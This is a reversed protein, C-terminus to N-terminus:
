LRPRIRETAGAVGALTVSLDRADYNPKDITLLDAFVADEATRAWDVM